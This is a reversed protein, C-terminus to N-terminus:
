LSSNPSSSSKPSRSSFEQGHTAIVLRMLRDWLRIDRSHTGGVRFVVTPWTRRMAPARSSYSFGSAGYLRASAGRVKGFGRGNNTIPVAAVSLNSRSGDYYWAAATAAGEAEKDRGGHDKGWRRIRRLTFDM